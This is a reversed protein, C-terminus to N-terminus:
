LCFEVVDPSFPFFFPVGTLLAHATGVASIRKEYAKQTAIPKM